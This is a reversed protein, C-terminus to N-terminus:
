EQCFYRSCRSRFSRHGTRSAMRARRLASSREVGQFSQPPRLEGSSAAAVQECEVLHRRGAAGVLFVVVILLYWDGEGRVLRGKMRGM